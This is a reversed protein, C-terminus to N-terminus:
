RKLAGVASAFLESNSTVLILKDGDALYSEPQISILQSWFRSQIEHIREINAILGVRDWTPELNELLYSPDKLQIGLNVFIQQPKFSSPSSFVYWEDYGGRPLIDTSSVKPSWAVPSEERWGRKQEDESLKLPGSDFATIAIYYGLVIEPCRKVLEGLSCDCILWSYIGNKGTDM